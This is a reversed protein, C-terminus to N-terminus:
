FTLWDASLPLNRNGIVKARERKEKYDKETGVIKDAKKNNCALHALQLNDIDAPHGGKAIPIIHDICPSLPHPFSLSKDVSKGCIACVSQTALIKQKNRKYQAQFVGDTEPRNRKTYAMIFVDKKGVLPVTKDMGEASTTYFLLHIARKGDLFASM